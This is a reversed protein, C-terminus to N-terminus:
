TKWSLPSGYRLKILKADKLELDLPHCVATFGMDQIYDLKDVIGQWSGGCYV